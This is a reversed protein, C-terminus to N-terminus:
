KDDFDVEVEASRPHSQCTLIFGAALEDAELAYNNDMEVEGKVLKARCTACVGGKCAYPLDAGQNLAGDLISVGDFPHDFAITIGDLKIKVHSSQVEEVLAERKQQKVQEGPVTFLEFHIREKPIGKKLLWDRVTFIMQEPGCIFIDDMEEVNAVHKSLLECKSEDIRGHNFPADTEERSLIHHISFREMYRNKLAELEERFIIGARNRNGYVLTVRSEPATALITKIISIVPTIGSGAAFALYSRATAGTGHLSFRGTPPLVDIRDGPQLHRNAHTSFKGEEQRKIAVRLEMELPSSCISYSRRLEEGGQQMRLTINQGATFRFADVLNDPVDFAISVCDPTERRIDKIVLSYFQTM